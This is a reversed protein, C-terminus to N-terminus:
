NQHNQGEPSCFGFRNVIELFAVDILQSGDVEFVLDLFDSLVGVIDGDDM